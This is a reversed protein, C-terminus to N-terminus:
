GASVVSAVEGSTTEDALGTAHLKRPLCRRGGRRGRLLPAAGPPRAAATPPSMRGSRRWRAPRGFEGDGVVLVAAEETQLYWRNLM